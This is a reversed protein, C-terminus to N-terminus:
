LKAFVYTTKKQSEYFTRQKVNEALIRDFIQIM